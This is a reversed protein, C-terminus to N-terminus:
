FNPLRIEISEIEKELIEDLDDKEFRKLYSVLNTELSPTQFNQAPDIIARVNKIFDNIMASSIGKTEFDFEGVDQMITLNHLYPVLLPIFSKKEKTLNNFHERPISFNNFSSMLEEFKETSKILTPYKTTFTIWIKMKKIKVIGCHVAMTSQYDGKEWLFDRLLHFVFLRRIRELFSNLSDPEEKIRIITFAVFYTLCNSYNSISQAYRNKKERFEEEIRDDPCYSLVKLKHYYSSQISMIDNGILAIMCSLNTMADDSSLKENSINISEKFVEEPNLKELAELESINTLFGKIDYDSITRIRRNKETAILKKKSTKLLHFLFSYAFLDIKQKLSEITPDSAYKSRCYAVLGWISKKIEKGRLAWKPIIKNQVFSHLIQILEIKEKEPLTNIRERSAPGEEMIKKCVKVIIKKPSMVAFVWNELKQMKLDKFINRTLLLDVVDFEKSMNEKRMSSVPDESTTNPYQTSRSAQNEISASM